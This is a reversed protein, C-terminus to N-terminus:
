FWLTSFLDSFQIKHDFFLWLIFILITAFCSLLHPLHTTPFTILPANITETQAMLKTAGIVNGMKAMTDIQVPEIDYMDPGNIIKSKFVIIVKIISLQIGKAPVMIWDNINSFISM